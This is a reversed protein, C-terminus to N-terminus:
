GLGAQRTEFEIRPVAYPRRLARRGVDAFPDVSKDMFRHAIGGDGGLQAVLQELRHGFADVLGLFEDGALDRARGLQELEHVELRRSTRMRCATTVPELEPM